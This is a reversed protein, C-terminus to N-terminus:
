RRGAPDAASTSHTGGVPTIQPLITAPQSHPLTPTGHAGLLGEWVTRSMPAAASAGTGAQEVMGVVVFRPHPSPGWSALWSTDKKGFVEATGTKGGLETKIPSGDFALAGSVTHDTTFHLSDEIYSLLKRSVPVHNKVSPDVTRSVSGSPSVEAWGLTPRYLTGGNVMASYAVALQLPSLTTEGQGISLDANDGARYRWGDTCNESALQTLYARRTPDTEDPYGTRADACYQKRNARWRSQRTERDAITGITQEDAPLDVGASSAFGFARAMHQLYEKPAQGDAVRQQDRYYEDVAFQYFWTDCSRQLALKLDVPGPVSETEFNTKVRGDVTLYGPCSYTGDLTALHHTIDSSASILKFTSGAAYYGDIARSILPQGASPANLAQYDAVTIGGVFEQPDYTPYSAAALIRGSRPDMVVLAGAPAPSGAARSATLQDQLAKEALKQVDLDISTVLTDGPVPAVTAGVGVQEGRADLQVVQYGDRGRLAGDYSQELGSRGITDADSLAPDATKDAATIQATYGLEHAALTGGPYERLTQTQVAVGPYDERHEDLQVLVHDAANTSVPVPQYPEGTWCPAPIRSGCPTIQQALEAPPRGLQAALRALTARGADPQALLVSRNVTIVYGTRNTVLVRGRADLIEGRPAPLVIRADHWRGATQVPKHPDLLQVYGLRGMLTLVLSSILVEILVLRRTSPSTM